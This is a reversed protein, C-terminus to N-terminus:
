QKATTGRRRTSSPPPSASPTGKGQRRTLTHPPSTPPVTSEQELAQLRPMDVRLSAPCRRRQRTYSVPMRVRAQCVPLCMPWGDGSVARGAWLRSAAERTRTM